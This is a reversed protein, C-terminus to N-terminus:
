AIGFRKTQHYITVERGGQQLHGTFIHTHRPSPLSAHCHQITSSQPVKYIAKSHKKCILLTSLAILLDEECHIIKLAFFFIIKTKSIM